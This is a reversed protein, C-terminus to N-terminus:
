QKEEEITAEKLKIELKRQQDIEEWKSGDLWAELDEVDEGTKGYHGVVAAFTEKFDEDSAYKRAQPYVRIKVNRGTVNMDGVDMGDNPHWLQNVGHLAMMQIPRKSMRALAYAGSFTPLLGKEPTPNLQGEPLIGIDFGDVFAQKSNKLFAKMSKKDYQNAEGPENPAMGIPIFGSQRFLIKTFPNDELNKWYVIKIPRKKPGRMKRDSALLLFVDLMSMHNCVWIAPEPNKRYEADKDAIVELKCFPFLRLAWRACFQGTSLALRQRRTESLGVYGLLKIISLSSILGLAVTAIFGIMGAKTLKKAFDSMPPAASTTAGNITSAATSLATTAVPQSLHRQPFPTTPKLSSLAAPGQRMPVFAYTVQLLAAVLLLAKSKM